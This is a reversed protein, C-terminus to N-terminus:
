ASKGVKAKAKEKHTQEVELLFNYRPFRTQGEKFTPRGPRAKQESVKSENDGGSLWIDNFDVGDELCHKWDFNDYIYNFSDARPDLLALIERNNLTNGADNDGRIQTRAMFTESGADSALGFPFVDKGRHGMCTEDYLSLVEQVVEGDGNVYTVDEDPWSLDTMTGTLRKFMFLREMTPHTMWFSPDLSSSAQGDGVCVM